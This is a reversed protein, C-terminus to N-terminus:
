DLRRIREVPDAQQAPQHVQRPHEEHGPVHQLRDALALRDFRLDRGGNRVGSGRLAVIFSVCSLISVVGVSSITSTMRTTATPPSTSITGNYKWRDVVCAICPILGYSGSRRTPRSM